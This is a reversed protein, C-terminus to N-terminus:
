PECLGFHLTISADKVVIGGLSHTVFIIPRARKFFSFTLEFSPVKAYPFLVSESVDEDSIRKNALDSLLTTAHQFVTAQGANSFIHNIDVDYGWTFIRSNPISKALLDKPWFITSSSPDAGEDV